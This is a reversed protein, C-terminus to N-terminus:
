LYFFQREYLQLYWIINRRHFTDEFIIYFMDWDNNTRSFTLADISSIVLLRFLVQTTPDFSWFVDLSESSIICEVGFQLIELDSNSQEFLPESCKAEHRSSIEIVFVGPLKPSLKTISKNILILKLIVRKNSIWWHLKM